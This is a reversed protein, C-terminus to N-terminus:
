EDIRIAETRKKKETIVFRELGTKTVEMEFGIKRIVRWGLQMKAESTLWVKATTFHDEMKVYHLTYTPRMFIKFPAMFDQFFQLVPHNMITLPYTDSLILHKYFGTTVKYAGLYYYFLLSHHDGEFHTFYLLDQDFYYWAKSDTQECYIYTKNYLDTKVEWGVIKEEQENTTVRFSTKQGPILHFAKSLADNKEINTVLTEKEPNQYAKLTYSGNSNEIFRGLPYDLTKSGIYPTSQVQFHLHPIPSRGSNGCTALVDGKKVQDGVTVKASGKKLHSFKTFLFDSHRLVITNGWNQRVNVDGIPNEEVSDDIEEVWGNAPALVPKNYCYYDERTQGSGSYTSEKADAIEFDWAHRWEGKHTVEGNHGQTVKWTGHFPLAFNILMSKEFRQTYNVHSYLNKEPSFSQFGVMQPKSFNRERFKLVYLFMLVILNFPLSFISLQFLGFLTNTSTLIISILPTLLITWLFSYKSPVIFFGGVAIATLIFNFGIYGYSLENFNAGVFGYYFYASLFGVWSLMFAIRSYILLGVAVLIGPLLHYQFLIAGLSKFYLKVPFYLPVDNFWEYAKVMPLGGLLYMENLSYIGRESVELTTFQRSALTVLWISFLFSLSLYPLGYKGLVGELAITLFVTLFSVFVLLVFLEVGPQFYVGLGLGVLLSNYGYYGSQIKFNNFGSLFALINSIIVALLGCLGAYVDFFTVLMLFLAFVKNNSFFVQTYSNLISSVFSPIQEKLRQTM